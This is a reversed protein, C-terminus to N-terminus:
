SSKKKAYRLADQRTAISKFFAKHGLTRERVGSNPHVVGWSGEM